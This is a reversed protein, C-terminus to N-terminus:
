VPRLPLGRDQAHLEIRCRAQRRLRGARGAEAHRHAAAARPRRRRAGGGGRARRGRGRRRGLRADHLRGEPLRGRRPAGGSAGVHETEPIHTFTGSHKEYAIRAPFTMNCIKCSPNQYARQKRHWETENHNTGETCKFQLRCLTCFQTPLKDFAEPDKAAEKAELEKQEERQALRMKGLEGRIRMLVRRMADMHERGLQHKRFDAFTACRAHCHPCKTVLQKSPPYVRPADDRRGDFSRDRSQDEDYDGFPRRPPGGRIYGTGRRPAYGRARFPRRMPAHFEDHRRREQYDDRRYHYDSHRSRMSSSRDRDYSDDRPRKYPPESGSSGAYHDAPRRGGSTQMLTDVLKKAIELQTRHSSPLGAGSERRDRDPYYRGPGSSFGGSSGGRGEYYGSGSGGSGGRGYSSQYYGGRGGRSMGRSPYYRSM